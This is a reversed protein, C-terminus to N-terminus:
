CTLSFQGLLTKLDQDSYAVLAADDAFLLDHMTIINLSSKARLREYNFLYNENRTYLKIGTTSQHKFAHNFMM